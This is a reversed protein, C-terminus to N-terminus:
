IIPLKMYIINKKITVRLLICLLVFLTFYKHNKFFFDFYNRKKFTTIHKIMFKLYIENINTGLLLLFINYAIFIVFNMIIDIKSIIKKKLYIIIFFLFHFINAVHNFQSNKTLKFISTSFITTIFAIFVSILPSFSIFDLLFLVSWVWLWSSYVLYSSNKKYIQIDM